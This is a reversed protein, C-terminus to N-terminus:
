YPSPAPAEYGGEPWGSGSGNNGGGFASADVNPKPKRTFTKGSSYPNGTGGNQPQGRGKFSGGQIAGAAPGGGYGQSGGYAGAAAGYANGSAGYGGNSPTTSQGSWGSPAPLAQRSPQTQPETPYTGPAEYGASADPYTTGFEEGSPTDAAHSGVSVLLLLVVAAHRRHNM